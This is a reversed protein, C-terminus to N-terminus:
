IIHTNSNNYNSYVTSAGEYYKFVNKYLPM